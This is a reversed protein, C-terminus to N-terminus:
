CAGPNSGSAPTDHTKRRLISELGKMAGKDDGALVQGRLTKYEQHNLRHRNAKIRLLARPNIAQLESM